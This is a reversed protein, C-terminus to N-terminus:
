KSRELWDIMTERADIGEQFPLLPWVHMMGEGEVLTVERGTAQAKEVLRKTDPTLLDNQAVFVLMPPLGEVDGFLPSLRPDDATWDGRILEVNEVVGPMDLWPDVKAVEHAESNTFTGDVCPTIPVVRSAAPKKAKLAEMTLGISLCGGASDGMVWFPSDDRSAAMEDYLPQLMAYIKDMKHEPALPYIPVTVVAQLREALVAVLEWHTPQIEFMFAGGHIYMIRAQTPTESKPSIEFVPFGGSIREEVIFQTRFRQPPKYDVPSQRTVQIRKRLAEASQWRGKYSFWIVWSYLYAKWSTM